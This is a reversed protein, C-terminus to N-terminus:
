ADTEATAEDAGDKADSIPGAADGPEADLFALAESAASSRVDDVKSRSHEEVKRDFDTGPPWPPQAASVKM